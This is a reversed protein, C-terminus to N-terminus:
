QQNRAAHRKFKAEKRAEATRQYKNFQGRIPRYANIFSRLGHRFAGDGERGWYDSKPLWEITEVWSEYTSGGNVVAQDILTYIDSDDEPCHSEYCELKPFVEKWAAYIDAADCQPGDGDLFSALASKPPQNRHEMTSGSSGSGSGSVQGDDSVGVSPQPKQSEQNGSGQLGDTKDQKLRNETDTEEPKLPCGTAQGHAAKAKGGKRAKVAQREFFDVTKNYEATVRKHEFYKKGRMLKWKSLVVEKNSLWMEKDRAGALKWLLDDDNPILPRTSCFVAKICLTRYLLKQLWDMHEVSEDAMFDKEAWKVYKPEIAKKV